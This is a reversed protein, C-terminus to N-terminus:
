AVAGFASATPPMLEYLRHSWVYPLSRQASQLCCAQRPKGRLLLRMNTAHLQGKLPLISPLSASSPLTLIMGGLYM